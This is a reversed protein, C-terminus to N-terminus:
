GALFSGFVRLVARRCAELSGWTRRTLETSGDRSKFTVAGTQGDITATGLPAGSDDFLTQETNM